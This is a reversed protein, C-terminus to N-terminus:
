EGSAVLSRGDSTFHIHGDAKPHFVQPSYRRREAFTLLVPNAASYTESFVTAQPRLDTMLAPNRQWPYVLLDVPQGAVALAAADGATGGTHFLAQTAGYRLLLVSGGQEGAATALVTLIAGDLDLRQGPTLNRLTGQAALRRWEGAAGNHGLAPPALALTPQYRAMAAVQGGMRLGGPATLIVAYLERQWFPLLQGLHLTLSSGDSGGDLLVFRGGPTQILAADGPTDFIHIHMRGDPQQFWAVGLLLILLAVVLLVLRYRPRIPTDSNM